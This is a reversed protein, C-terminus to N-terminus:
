PHLRVGGGTPKNQKKPKPNIIEIQQEDIWEPEPLEHKDKNYKPQILYQICGNLYEAKATATGEFETIKDRVKDGLRIM